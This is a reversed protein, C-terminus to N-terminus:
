EGYEEAIELLLARTEDRSLAVRDIERLAARYRQVDAQRELFLDGAYEQVYVIPPPVVRSQPLPPFDLWIFSGALAGLLSPKGFTVVRLSVNPLESVRLLHRCQDEMVGRGGIQNRLVAESMIADVTLHPDELLAQRRTAWEIRKEIEESPVDPSEAWALARRYDATQLLGLVTTVHWTTLKSAAEELALYHDFNYTIQDSYARWWSVKGERAQRAENVLGLLVRREADTAGYGDCLANVQLGTTRTARGEEIRGISQPSVEAFRGAESQLM